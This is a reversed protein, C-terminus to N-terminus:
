GRVWCSKQDRTPQQTHLVKWTQCTNPLYRCFTTYLKSLFCMRYWYMSSWRMISMGLPVLILKGKMSYFLDNKTWIWGIGGLMCWLHFSIRSTMICFLGHFILPSWSGVFLQILQFLPGPPALFRLIPISLLYDNDVMLKMVIFLQEFVKKGREFSGGFATRSIIDTTVDRMHKQMEVEVSGGGGALVLKQLDELMGYTSEAMATVM